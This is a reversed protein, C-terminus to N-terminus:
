LNGRNILDYAKSMDQLLAWCEKKREQAEEFINNLIHIPEFTSNGPLAAFNHEGLVHKNKALITSLRNTLIKMYLKRPSELLM